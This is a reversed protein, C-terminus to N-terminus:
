GTWDGLTHRIPQQFVISGDPKAYEALIRWAEQRVDAIQDEPIAQWMARQGTSRTFAEWQTNNAFRIDVSEEITRINSYGSDRLLAEMGADSGFPGQQGTTRADRMAPPLFPEFVTDVRAWRPDMGRFTTVGIRGGPKLRRQWAKLAAPPDPLFFLVLSSSVADFTGLETSPEQADGIRVEVNAHLDLDKRAQNVMGPSIDIGVVSGSAGILDVVAAMVAGRGCGIDLWREGSAPQMARALGSAIPQFFDVGVGDYTDSLADFMHAVNSLADESM